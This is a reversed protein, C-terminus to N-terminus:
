LKGEVQQAQVVEGRADTKLEVERGRVRAKIWQKGATQLLARRGLGTVDVYVLAVNRATGTLIRTSRAAEPGYKHGVVASLRDSGVSVLRHVSDDITSLVLHTSLAAKDKLGLKSSSPEPNPSDAAYKQLRAPTYARTGTNPSPSRSKGDRAPLPPPTLGRNGPPGSNTYPPPLPLSTSSATPSVNYFQSSPYHEDATVITPGAPEGVFPDGYPSRGRHVSAKDALPSPARKGDPTYERFPTTSGPQLTHPLATQQSDPMDALALRKKPRLSAAGGVARAILSEVVAVTKGSVQVAKGTYAHATHMNKQTTNSTLWTVARPPPVPATGPVPPSASPHPVARQIYMNSAATMGNVMLNTATTIGTSLMSAGRTLMNHEQPPIARAFIDRAAELEGTPGVDIVVADREHGREMLHPDALVRQDVPGIVEGNDQDVLVLRVRLDEGAVGGTV